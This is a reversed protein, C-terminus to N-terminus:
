IYLSEFKRALYSWSYNDKSARANKHFVEVSISESSIEDITKFENYDSIKFHIYIHLYLLIVGFFIIINTLWKM